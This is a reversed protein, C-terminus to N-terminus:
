KIVNIERGKEKGIEERGKGGKRERGREREGGRGAHHLSVRSLVPLLSPTTHLDLSESAGGESHVILYLTAKCVYVYTRVHVCQSLGIARARRNM